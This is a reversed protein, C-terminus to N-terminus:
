SHQHGLLSWWSSIGEELRHKLMEQRTIIGSTRVGEGASPAPLAVSCSLASLRISLSLEAPQFVWLLQLLTRGSGATLGPGWRLGGLCSQSTVARAGPRPPRPAEGLAAAGPTVGAECVWRPSGRRRWRCPWVGDPLLKVCPRHRCFERKNKQSRKGARQSHPLRTHHLLVRTEM